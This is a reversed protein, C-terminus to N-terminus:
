SVALKNHAVVNMNGLFLRFMYRTDDSRCRYAKSNTYRSGFTKCLSHTSVTSFAAYALCLCICICICSTNLLYCAATAAATSHSRARSFAALWSRAFPLVCPGAWPSFPTTGSFSPRSAATCQWCTLFSHKGCQQVSECFQVLVECCLCAVWSQQDQSVGREVTLCADPFM